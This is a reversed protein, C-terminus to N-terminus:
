SRVHVATASVVFANEDLQKVIGSVDVTKLPELGGQGEASVSLPRGDDGTLQVTALGQTLEEPHECCYDWPTACHDDCPPFDSDAVLFVARGEAFPKVRGGIRGTLTVPEGARAKERAELIGMASAPAQNTFYREPISVAEASSPESESAPEMGTNGCGVIWGTAAVCLCVAIRQSQKM